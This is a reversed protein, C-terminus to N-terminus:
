RFLPLCAKFRETGAERLIEFLASEVTTVAAGRDRVRELAIEADRDRRSCVADACVHVAREDALLDFATQLVCVHAEVGCLILRPRHWQELWARFGDAGCCSFATKEITALGDAPEQLEECLPGLGKVYQLTVLAPIELIKAAAVLRRCAAITEERRQMAAMLKEQVDIVVLACNETTLRWDSGAM